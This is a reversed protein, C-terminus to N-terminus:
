PNLRVLEDLWTPWHRGGQHRGLRLVVTQSDRDILLIQGHLGQAYVRPGPQLPPGGPLPRVRWHWAFFAAEPAHPREINRWAPDAPGPLGSMAATSRRLWDAGVLRRGNWQGEAAVMLGLRLLDRPRANFCCFARAQGAADTSWSADFEAGLPRWLRQQAYRALPLGTAREIVQGLLQTDGSQYKHIQNPAREIRLRAVEAQLDTGLYFRAADSTPSRYGEDFAIGSRMALLHRLTVQAFRPDQAALEPLHRTVPEDVGAISGEEIAMGLLLSVVSKAISFVATLRDPTYGDFYREYVLQGRRAVLLAVTGHAAVDAEAAATELGGPWRLPAPTAPLPSPTEARAIPQSAFHRHDDITSRGGQLVLWLPVPTLALLAALAMAAAAALAALVWPGRRRGQRM